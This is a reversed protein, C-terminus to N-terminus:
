GCRGASLEPRVYGGTRWFDVCDLFGHKLVPLSGIDMKREQRIAMEAKSMAAQLSGRSVPM